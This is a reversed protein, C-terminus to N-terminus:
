YTNFYFSCCLIKKKTSNAASCFVMRDKSDPHHNLDIPSIRILALGNSQFGSPLVTKGTNYCGGTSSGPLVKTSNAASCFVMRDKSDPHHNLDIPSIRILALGNSQFGSPLVTKGTNYCGGTSSGPLVKRPMRELITLNIISM